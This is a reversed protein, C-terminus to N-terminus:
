RIYVMNAERLHQPPDMPALQNGHRTPIPEATKMAELIDPIPLEEKAILQGPLAMSSGFVM